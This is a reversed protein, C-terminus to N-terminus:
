SCALFDGGQKAEAPKDYYLQQVGNNMFFNGFSYNKM